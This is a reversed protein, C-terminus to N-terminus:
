RTLAPVLKSEGHGDVGGQGSKVGAKERYSAKRLERPPCRKEKAGWLVRRKARCIKAPSIKSSWGGGQPAEVKIDGQGPYTRKGGKHKCSSFDREERMGISKGKSYAVKELKKEKEWHDQTIELNRLGTGQIGEGRFRTQHTRKVSLSLDLERVGLRKRTAVTSNTWQILRGNKRVLKKFRSWKSPPEMFTGNKQTKALMERIRLEPHKERKKKEKRGWSRHMQDKSGTKV